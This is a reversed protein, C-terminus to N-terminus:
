GQNSESNDNKMLKQYNPDRSMLVYHAASFSQQGRSMASQLAQQYKSGNVKEFIKNKDFSNDSSPGYNQNNKEEEKPKSYKDQLSKYMMEKNIINMAPAGPLVKPIAGGVARGTDIIGKLAMPSTLAGGVVAGPVNGILYGLGTGVGIRAASKGTTDAAMIKPSGFTRMAALDQAEELMPTNTMEGLEQLARANRPNGGSGAGLLAAEPSGVKILNRNMNDDISHLRALQENAEKIAPESRNLLQRTEAAAGKAANASEKGTKFIVGEATYSPSAIDQLFEKIQHAQISSVNGNNGVSQVKSIIDDIQKIQDPYLQPNIRAKYEELKGIAPNIDVVNLSNQLTKSIKDNLQGKTEKIADSYKKRVIDAAEITSNDSEKALSKIKDANAAYSRIEQEPVGTLAEAGKALGTKLTDMGKKAIPSEALAKLGKGIVQGGVESASGLVAEEALGKYYDERSKPQDGMLYKEGLDQLAKGGMAGLGSGGVMGLPGLVTGVAGGAISGAIPLAQLAGREFGELSFGSDDQPQESVEEFSQNPDFKPKEASEFPQNPDFKPKM